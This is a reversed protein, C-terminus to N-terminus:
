AKVEVHISDSVEAIGDRIGELSYYLGDAVNPAIWDSDCSLTAMIFNMQAKLHNLKDVSELPAYQPQTKNTNDQKQDAM